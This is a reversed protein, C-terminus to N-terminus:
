SSAPIRAGPEPSGPLPSSGSGTRFTAYSHKWKMGDYHSIIGSGVYRTGVAWVDTRDAGWIGNLFIYDPSPEATWRSGDFHVIEAGDAWFDKASTGWIGGYSGSSSATYRVQEWSGRYRMVSGSEGAAFLDDPRAAWLASLASRRPRATVSRQAGDYHVRAGGEGVAWVDAPGTAYIKNLMDTAGQYVLTWYKGDYHLVSGNRGTAWIDRSTRGSVSRLGAFASSSVVKWTAAAPPMGGDPMPMPMPTDPRVCVAVQCSQGTDCTQNPYSAGGLQGPEPPNQPPGGGQSCGLLLVLTVILGRSRSLLSRARQVNM